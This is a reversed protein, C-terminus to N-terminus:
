DHGLKILKTISDIAVGMIKSISANVVSSVAAFNGAQVTEASGWSGWAPETALYQRVIFNDIYGYGAGNYSVFHVINTYETGAAMAAGTKIASGNFWLDYTGATFNVNRIELSFWVNNTVISGTDRTATDYYYIHRNTDIWIYSRKTADGWILAHFYANDSTIYGRISLATDDTATVSANLQPQAAGYNLRASRTGGYKQATSITASGNPVSWTISGGSTSMNDSNAGWEFDDGKIFTDSINSYATATSNGYYMYFTTASTGISNFEIWITALQNPTSGSISEIWYDLVTSNDSTVFRLDDFDAQCNAGCDVDEGTASSSEGVLLKMQYNTVAGSARSLTISKCYSWNSDYWSTASIPTPLLTVLLALIM